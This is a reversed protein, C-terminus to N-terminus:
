RGSIVAVPKVFEHGSERAKLIGAVSLLSNYSIDDLGGKEMASQAKHLDSDSLVWGAGGSKAVCELLSKKRKAVRDTIADALSTKSPKFDQDTESAIPHIRTTQCVHLQVDKDLEEFGKNIGTSGTGSSCPVFVSDLDPCQEYLDYAITKFGTVAHEDTSGRLNVAENKKAFQIAESKPRQVKHIAVKKDVFGKLIGSKEKNIKTSVFVDLKVDAKNAYAVASIAANGSSSIVFSCKGQSIYHSLQYALSRDKFSGTPNRDELKLCIELGDVEIHTVPTFGEGLTLRFPEGVDVIKNYNWISNM